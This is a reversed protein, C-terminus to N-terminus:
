ATQNAISSFRINKHVAYLKQFCWQKVENLKESVEDYRIKKFSGKNRIKIFTRSHLKMDFFANELVFFTPLDGEGNDFLQRFGIIQKALDERETEELLLSILNFLEQYYNRSLTDLKFIQRYIIERYDTQTM